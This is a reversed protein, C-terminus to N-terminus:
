IIQNQYDKDKETTEIELVITHQLNYNILTGITTNKNTMFTLNNKFNWKELNLLHKNNEDYANTDNEIRIFAFNNENDNHSYYLGTSPKIINPAEIIIRNIWNNGYINTTENSSRSFLTIKILLMNIMWILNKLFKMEDLYNLNMMLLQKMMKM